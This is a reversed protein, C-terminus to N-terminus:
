GTSPVAHGKEVIIPSDGDTPVSSGPRLTLGAASLLSVLKHRTLYVPRSTSGDLTNGFLRRGSIEYSVSNTLEILKDKMVRPKGLAGLTDTLLEPFLPQSTIFHGGPKLVRAVERVAARADMYQLASFMLVCDFSDDEYPLQEGAGLDIKPPDVGEIKAFISTFRRYVPEIECGIAHPTVQQLRFLNCGWGPGIELVRKDRFASLELQPWADERHLRRDREVWFIYERAADACKIGLPNPKFGQETQTGLGLGALLPVESLGQEGLPARSGLRALTRLVAPGRDSWLVQELEDLTSDM